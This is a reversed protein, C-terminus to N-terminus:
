SGPAGAIRVAEAHKSEMGREAFVGAVREALEVAQGSEGLGQLLRALDLGVEAAGAGDRIQERVALSRGLFRRAEGSRGLLGCVRGLDHLLYGEGIPDRLERVLEFSETLIGLAERHDGKLLSYQGIRRLVQARSRPDGTTEAHERARQLEVMGREEEGMALRVHGTLLLTRGMGAVDGISEFVEYAQEGFDLARERDGDVNALHALERLCKARGLADELGTFGKLAATMAARAEDNKRQDLYLCGNSFTIAAMGRLNGAARVAEMARQNTLAWEDPHCRRGFLTLLSVALDWCLEDLGARAATDVAAYLNDQERELWEMPDALAAETLARPPHWRTGEGHLLLYDGGHIRRNAEDVLGLWGGVLRGLAAHRDPGPEQDLLRERAFLRIIDHFRYRPDGGPDIGTVDLMQADVLPELLDSPYRRRDDLLAGAIWGPQNPGDALAFLRLTRRTVDDMGDYTLSLSARVGLEGHTLEDLRHREDSLRNVMSALSWHPRAALRAAVIRLALPLRGVSRVLSDAAAPEADVRGSGVIRRLLDFSQDRDLVDLEVLVAGPVGTLRARSTVIVGCGPSGPLLDAVQRESGADDLVVLVQRESLLSRYMEAREDRGEPISQGPIGLARLFRALVEATETPSERSGRLDCYLQGDPFREDQLRHAVHVAMASKGVGPRGIVVAVGVAHGREPLTLAIEVTRASETRGVFDATDAPLQRPRAEGVGPYAEPEEPLILLETGKDDSDPVAPTAPASPSRLDSREPGLLLTPDGSLISTELGRLEEGMELGLERMFLDRGRRYAELAEAQRGSRYLALMLQKRLRERLPFDQVLANIEGILGSHRGLGLELEIYTEILNTRAEDLRAAKTGLSRSSIGSLTPGSWLGSARRLLSVAEADRGERSVVEAEAALRQFRRVDIADPEAQFRYGPPRTELTAGTSALSKRLRSVCIQVQTRATGPPDEDWIADVLYDTSVVHGAELLLAALVVQQRGPPIRM